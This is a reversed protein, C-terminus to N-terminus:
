GVHSSLQGAPRRGSRDDAVTWTGDGDTLGFKLVPRPTSHPIAGQIVGVAAHHCREVLRWELDDVTRSHPMAERVVGVLRQDRM